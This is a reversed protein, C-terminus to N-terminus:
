VNVNLLSHAKNVFPVLNKHTVLSLIDAYPMWKGSIFGEDRNLILDTSPSIFLLWHVIKTLSEDHWFLDYNYVGLHTVFQLDTLGCEEYIERYATGIVSEGQEIHGKPFTWQCRIKKNQDIFNKTNNRKQQLILYYWGRDFHAIIGGSTYVTKQQM